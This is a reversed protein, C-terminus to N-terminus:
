GALTAKLLTMKWGVAGRMEEPGAVSFSFAFGVSEQLKRGRERDRRPFSQPLNQTEAHQTHM